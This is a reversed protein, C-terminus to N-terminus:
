RYSNLLNFAEKYAIMKLSGADSRGTLRLEFVRLPLGIYDKPLEPHEFPQEGVIEVLDDFNIRPYYFQMHGTSRLVIAEDFLLKILDDNLLCRTEWLSDANHNLWELSHDDPDPRFIQSVKRVLKQYTGLAPDFVDWPFEPDSRRRKSARRYFEVQWNISDLWNCQSRNM